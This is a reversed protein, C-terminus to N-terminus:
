LEGHSGCNVYICSRKEVDKQRSAQVAFRHHSCIFSLVLFPPSSRAASVLSFLLRRDSLSDFRRVLFSARTTAVGVYEVYLRRNGSSRGEWLQGAFLYAGQACRTSAFLTTTTSQLFRSMHRRCRMALATSSVCSVMHRWLRRYFSCM